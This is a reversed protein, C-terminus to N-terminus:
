AGLVDEGCAVRTATKAADEVRSLLYQVRLGQEFDPTCVARDRVAAAFRDMLRRFPLLRGGSSDQHMDKAIVESRGNKTTRALEFGTM